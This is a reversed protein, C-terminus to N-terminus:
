IAQMIEQLENQASTCKLQTVDVKRKIFSAEKADTQVGCLQLKLLTLLTKQQPLKFCELLSGHVM